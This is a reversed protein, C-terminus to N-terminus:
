ELHECHLHKFQDLCQGPHDFNFNGANAQAFEEATLDRYFSEQSLIM